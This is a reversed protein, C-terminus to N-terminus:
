RRHSIRRVMRSSSSFSGSGTGSRAVIGGPAPVVPMDERARVAEVQALTIPDRSGIALLIPGPLEDILQDQRDPRLHRALAGALGAAGVFLTPPGALAAEVVRDLDADSRVDPIALDLGSGNVAGAIDIPASVGAGLLRGHEVLRGQAPIAPAILVRTLGTRNVLAGLEARINGKLRSDIKKFFIRPGLNELVRDVARGAETESADRSATSVALVDPEAAVVEQLDEPRRAVRCRFGIRALPVTSDLAGTLDDAIILVQM